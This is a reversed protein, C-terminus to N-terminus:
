CCESEQATREKRRSSEAGGHPGPAGVHLSPLTAHFAILHESGRADPHDAGRNWTPKTKVEDLLLDM